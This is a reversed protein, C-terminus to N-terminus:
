QFELYSQIMARDNANPKRELYRLFEAKAAARDGAKWQVLGLSRHVEPPATTTAIASGFADRARADDGYSGRLRFVEGRLFLLEGTPGDLLLQDLLAQTRGYQRLRLEDAFLDARVAALRSAYRDRHLEASGAGRKQEGMQRLTTMREAPAPHSAFFVERNTKKEAADEERILQAWVESAQIPDYGLQAMRELGFTDAEREQDRSFGAISAAAILSTAVGIIGVGALALGLNLVQVFDVKDRADRWREIGHGYVFHGIEHGVVAALQAENRARLLLGSWIQMMGNPSMQANFYPTRIVYVRIDRCYDGALRCVLDTVYGAVEPHTIRFRSARVNLEARETQYWLGAEDSGEAPRYGPAIRTSQAHAGGTGFPLTGDILATTGLACAACFGGLVHRRTPM